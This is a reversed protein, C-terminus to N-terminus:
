TTTNKALKRLIEQLNDRQIENSNHNSILQELKNRLTEMHRGKSVPVFELSKLSESLREFLVQYPLGDPATSPLVSKDIKDSTATMIYYAETASGNLDGVMAFGLSPCHAWIWIGARVM